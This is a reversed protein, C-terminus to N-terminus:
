PVRSSDNSTGLDLSQRVAQSFTRATALPGRTANASNAATVTAAGGLAAACFASMQERFACSALTIRRAIFRLGQTHETGTLSRMRREVRLTTPTADILLPSKSSKLPM